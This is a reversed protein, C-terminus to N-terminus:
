AAHATGEGLSALAAANQQALWTEWAQRPFRLLRGQRVFPLRGSAALIAVQRPTVRLHRAVELTTLFECDTVCDM